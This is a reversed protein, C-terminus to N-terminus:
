TQFSQQPLNNLKDIFGVLDSWDAEEENTKKEYDKKYKLTDAAYWRLDGRPDCKYNNGKDSIFHEKLFTRNPQQVNLYLGWYENNIYLKAYNARVAPLINRAIEYGIKERVFAPDFFGNNLNLTKYGLLNQDPKYADMTINFPKKESPVNFSSNGKYRIGVSDYRVGDFYLTCPIDKESQVNQMLLDKWNPQSFEVRIEVIVSDNYLDQAKSSFCSLFIFLSTFLFRKM